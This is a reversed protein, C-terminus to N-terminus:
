TLSHQFASRALVVGDLHTAEGARPTGEAATGLMRSAASRHIYLRDGIRVQLTPIVYPQGDIAFGVHCVLATDLLANVVERDYSARKPLRKVRTRATPAIARNGNHTATGAAMVETAEKMQEAKKNCYM